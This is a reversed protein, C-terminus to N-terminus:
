PLLLEANHGAQMTEQGAETRTTSSLRTARAIRAAYLLRRAPEADDVRVAM